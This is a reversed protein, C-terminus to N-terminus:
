GVLEAIEEANRSIFELKRIVLDISIDEEREAILNFHETKRRTQLNHERLEQNIGRLEKLLYEEPTQGQWKTSQSQQQLETLAASWYMAVVRVNAGYSKFDKANQAEQLNALLKRASTKPSGFEKDGVLDALMYIQAFSQCFQHSGSKQHGKEYSNWEKGKATCYVWHGVATGAVEKGFFLVRNKGQGDTLKTAETNVVLDQTTRPDSLCDFITEIVAATGALQLLWQVEAGLTGKSM